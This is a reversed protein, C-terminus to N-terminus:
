VQWKYESWDVLAEEVYKDQTNRDISVEIFRSAVFTSLEIIQRKIDDSANEREVKIDNEAKILLYKVEEHAAFLVQDSKEVALKHAQNLIEEREREINEIMEIYQAKLEQAEQNNSHAFEIDKKIREARETMFKKVPKYLIFILLVTLLIINFWRIVIQILLGKDIQVLTGPPMEESQALQASQALFVINMFIRDIM